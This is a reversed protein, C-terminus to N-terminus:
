AHASDLGELTALSSLTTSYNPAIKTLPRECIVNYRQPPYTTLLIYSDCVKILCIILLISALIYVYTPPHDFVVFFAYRLKHVVGLATSQTTHTQINAM